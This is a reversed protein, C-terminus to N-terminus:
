KIACNGSLGDFTASCLMKIMKLLPSVNTSDLKSEHLVGAASLLRDAPTIILEGNRHSPRKVPRNPRQLQQEAPRYQETFLTRREIQLRYATFSQADAM